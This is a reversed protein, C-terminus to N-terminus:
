INARCAKWQIPIKSSKSSRREKRKGTSRKPQSTGCKGDSSPFDYLGDLLHSFWLQGILSFDMFSYHSVVRLKIESIRPFEGSDTFPHQQDKVGYFQTSFRGMGNRDSLPSESRSSVPSLKEFGSESQVVISPLQLQNPSVDEFSLLNKGSDLLEKGIFVELEKASKIDGDEIKEDLHDTGIGEDNSELLTDDSLTESDSRRRFEGDQSELPELESCKKLIPQYRQVNFSASLIPSLPQTPFGSYMRMPPGHAEEIDNGCLKNNSGCRSPGPSAMSSYGSSSLNGESPARDGRACFSFPSLFRYDIASAASLKNGKSPNPSLFDPDSEAESVNSTIVITPPLIPFDLSGPKEFQMMLRKQQQKNPFFDSTEGISARQPPPSGLIHIVPLREKTPSPTQIMLEPIVLNTPRHRRGDTDWEPPADVNVEISIAPVSILKSRKQSLKSNPSADFDLLNGDSDTRRSGDALDM